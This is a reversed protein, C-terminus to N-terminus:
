SQPEERELMSPPYIFIRIAAGVQAAMSLTEPSFGDEYARPEDGVDYGAIFERVGAEDWQRKVNPPLELVLNCLKQITMDASPAHIPDCYVYWRHTEWLLKNVHNGRAEFWEVFADCDHDTKIAIEVSIFKSQRPM